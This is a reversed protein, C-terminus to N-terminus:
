GYFWREEFATDIQCGLVALEMTILKKEADGGVDAFQPELERARGIIREEGIWVPQNPRLSTPSTHYLQLLARAESIDRAHMMVSQHRVGLYDFRYLKQSM